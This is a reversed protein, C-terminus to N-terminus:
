DFGLYIKGWDYEVRPRLPSVHYDLVVEIKIGNQIVVGSFKKLIDIYYNIQFMSLM